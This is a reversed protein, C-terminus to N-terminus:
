HEAKSGRCGEGPCKKTRAALCANNYTRQRMVAPMAPEDAYRPAIECAIEDESQGSDVAGGPKRPLMAELYTISAAMFASCTIVLSTM